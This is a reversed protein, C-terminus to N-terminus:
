RTPQWLPDTVGWNRWARPVPAVLELPQRTVPHHLVLRRCHLAIRERCPAPSGYKLDGLVPHGRGSFQVRIQHKRGTLLEVEVLTARLPELVQLVRYRLRCELAGPMTPGVLQMKRRGQQPRLYNVWEAQPKPLTGHVVAWYRKEVTGERFQRTLRAAAKSNRALPVLGSVPADLRSVVGLFPKGSPSHKQRLYERALDVLSVEGAPAGMTILGPPKDVVLLHRDEYVVPPMAKGFRTASSDSM